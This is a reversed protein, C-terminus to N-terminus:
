HPHCVYLQARVDTPCVHSVIFKFLPTLAQMLTQYTPASVPCSHCSLSQILASCPGVHKVINIPYPETIFLDNDAQAAFVSALPKRM